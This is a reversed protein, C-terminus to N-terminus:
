ENKKLIIIKEYLFHLLFNFEGCTIISEIIIIPIMSYKKGIENTLSNILNLIATSSIGGTSLLNRRTRRNRHNRLDRNIQDDFNM